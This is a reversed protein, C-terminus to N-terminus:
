FSLSQIFWPFRREQIEYAPPRFAAKCNEVFRPDVHHRVAESYHPHCCYRDTYSDLQRNTPLKFQHECGFLRIAVPNSSNCHHDMVHPKEKKLLESWLEAYLLGEGAADLPQPPNTEAM